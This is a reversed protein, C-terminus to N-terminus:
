RGEVERLLTEVAEDMEPGPRGRYRIVGQADIVFAAPLASVEWERSTQDGGERMWNPWPIVQHKLASRLEEPSEDYNVGLFAFPRGELRAALAKEHPLLAMCPACWTAWFSLVVVKGRFDSLRLPRDPQGYQIAVGAIEPAPRGPPLGPPEARRLLESRLWLAFGVVAVLALVGPVSRRWNGTHAVV